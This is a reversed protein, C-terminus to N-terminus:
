VTKVISAKHIVNDLLSGKVNFSSVRYIRDSLCRDSLSKPRARKEILYLLFSFLYGPFLMEYLKHSSRGVLRAIFFNRLPCGHIDKVDTSAFM